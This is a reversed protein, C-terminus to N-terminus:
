FVDKSNIAFSDIKWTYKIFTKSIKIIDGTVKSIRIKQIKLFLHLM